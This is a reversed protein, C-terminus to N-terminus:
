RRSAVAGRRDDRPCRDSWRRSGAGVVPHGVLGLCVQRHKLHVELQSPLGEGIIRLPMLRPPRLRASYGVREVPIDEAGLEDLVAVAGPCMSKAGLLEVDVTGSDDRVRDRLNRNRGAIAVQAKLPIAQDLVRDLMQGATANLDLEPRHLAAASSPASGTDVEAVGVPTEQLENGIPPSM